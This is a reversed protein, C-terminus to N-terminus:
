LIIDSIMSYHLFWREPQNFTFMCLEVDCKVFLELACIWQRRFWPASPASFASTSQITDWKKSCVLTICVVQHYLHASDEIFCAFLLRYVQWSCPIDGSCPIPRHTMPWPDFPDRFDSPDCPDHTVLHQGMVWWNKLEIAPSIYQPLSLIDHRMHLQAHSQRLELNVNM